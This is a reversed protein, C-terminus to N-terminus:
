DDGHRIDKILEATITFDGRLITYVNTGSWVELEYLWKGAYGKTDTEELKTSIDQGDVTWDSKEDDNIKDFISIRGKFVAFHINKGDMNIIEPVEIELMATDGEQREIPINAAIISLTTM